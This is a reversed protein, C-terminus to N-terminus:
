TNTIGHDTQGNHQTQKESAQYKQEDVDNFILHEDVLYFYLLSRKLENDRLSIYL